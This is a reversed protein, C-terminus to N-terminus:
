KPPARRAERGLRALARHSRLLAGGLALVGFSDPPRLEGALFRRLTEARRFKGSSTRPLTGPAVLEVRSVLLGTAALVADRCTAPLAQRLADGATGAIEAFLLLEEGAAGEPLYSVAVVAQGRVGALGIVPREVEEPAHNSGHLILVDKARGTIYLEGAYQFGLDGTDLWGDRLVAATAQPRDLYERLLSPGRTWIRGCEGAAVPSDQHDRVVVEFGPVALGVSVLELGQDSPEARGIALAARDFRRVLPGRGIPSFAVGLAAESLGYVPTMAEARFGWRAFRAVFASLVGPSISEAGNLAIQWSSLDVGEMERDSIRATALGFAFNPAASVTARYRSIARLWFAPKAVFLEPPLLTVVAPRVLASLVFGILGMDHYLPLWSVGSHALAPTDPWLSNISRAQALIAAHSLAVPKPDVTTGSSFQVLALEGPDAGDLAIAAAGAAPLESLLRCGLRPRARAIAEGLVRRVGRDALVLPASAAAIMRATAAHYEELRALRVPPYLPTPVAGALLTGFFAELFEAGTPYVLAIREGRAVGLVRLSRAVARARQEIHNWPLWTPHEQRDLLRIGTAPFRAAAQLCSGITPCNEAPLM